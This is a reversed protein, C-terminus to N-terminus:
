RTGIEPYTFVLAALARTGQRGLWALAAVPLALSKQLSM